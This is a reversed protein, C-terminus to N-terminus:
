PTALDFPAGSLIRGFITWLVSVGIDGIDDISSCARCCVNLNDPLLLIVQRLDTYEVILDLDLCFVLTLAPGHVDDCLLALFKQVSSHQFFARRHMRM